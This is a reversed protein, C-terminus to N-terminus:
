SDNSNTEEKKLLKQLYKKKTKLHFVNSRTAIDYM